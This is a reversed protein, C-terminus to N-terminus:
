VDIEDDGTTTTADEGDQVITLKNIWNEGYL